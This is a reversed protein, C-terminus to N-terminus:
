IMEVKDVVAMAISDQLFFARTVSIRDRLHDMDDERVEACFCANQYPSDPASYWKGHVPLGVTTVLDSIEDCFNSWMAQTLRNDSNGITIYVTPM